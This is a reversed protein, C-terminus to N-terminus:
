DDHEEEPQVDEKLVYDVWFAGQKKPPAFGFTVEMVRLASELNRLDSIWLDNTEVITNKMDKLENRAKLLAIRMDRTMRKGNMGSM